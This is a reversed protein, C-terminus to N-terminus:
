LNYATEVFFCEQQGVIVIGRNKFRKAQVVYNGSKLQGPIVRM